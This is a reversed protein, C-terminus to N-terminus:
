RKGKKKHKVSSESESDEDSEDSDSGSGSMSGSDEDEDSEESSSSSESKDSDDSDNEPTSKKSPKSVTPKKATKSAKKPESTTKKSAAPKKSNTPSKVPQNAKLQESEKQYKTKEKESVNKWMEAIVKSIQGFTIGPNKDMVEKRKASSFLVYATPPRKSKENSGKPSKKEYEAKLENAQDTYKKLKQPNNKLEVWRRSIEGSIETINTKEKGKRLENSIDSVFLNYATAPKKEGKAKVKKSITKELEAIFKKRKESDKAKLNKANVVEKVAVIANDFKGQFESM